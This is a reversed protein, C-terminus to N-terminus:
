RSSPIARSGRSTPPRRSSSRTSTAPCCRPSARRSTRSSGSRSRRGRRSRAGITTTACWNSATATSTACSSTAAAASRGGQGINFDETSPAPRSRRRCSTSRRCTTRRCRIRRRTSSASRTRTSSKRRSSRRRTARLVPGPQESGDARPRDLVRRGRRHARQRRPVQRGQAAQVGVDHDDIAKWSTAIGPIMKSDPDMQVLKDFIHEAINNNPFSTSSTRTSRRSTPPSPSRRSGARRRAGPRRVDTCRRACRGPLLRFTVTSM